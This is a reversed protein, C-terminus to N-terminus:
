KQQFDYFDGIAPTKAGSGSAEATWLSKWWIELRLGGNTESAQPDAGLGANTVRHM